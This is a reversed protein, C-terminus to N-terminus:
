RYPHRESPADAPRVVKGQGAQCQRWIRGRTGVEDREVERREHCPVVWAALERGARWKAELQTRM